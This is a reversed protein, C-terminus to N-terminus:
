RMLRELRSIDHDYGGHVGHRTILSVDAKTGATAPHDSARVTLQRVENSIEVYTTKTAARHVRIIEWDAATVISTIQAILDEIESEFDPAWPEDIMDPTVPEKGVPKRERRWQEYPMPVLGRKRQRTAYRHHTRKDGHRKAPM